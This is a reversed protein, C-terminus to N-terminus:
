VLAEVPLFPLDILFTAGCNKGSSSASLKGKMEGVANACSHLGFGHGDKKTTFGHSFIRTVNEPEIGAGNDTFSIHLRDQNHRRISIILQRDDVKSEVLSDKANQLLNVFVQLLKQKEIKVQPLEEFERIVRVNHKALSSALLLEADDILTGLEVVEHLGSIGAYSQQMSVITKVHDLHASLSDLEDTAIEREGSLKAVLKDMYGPLAQGKETHDFFHALNDQEHILDICKKMMPLRSSHLTERVLCASVNISNLVNGVNHLVGTAIEAKGARHSLEVLHQNMKEREEFETKLKLNAEKLESTRKEVRVELEDRSQQITKQAQEITELMENFCAYLTGIEDVSKTEVRRSYNGDDSVEQAAHALDLIPKSVVRQLRLIMVWAVILSFFMITVAIWFNHLTEQRIDDLSAHIYLTGLFEEDEIIPVLVDLYGDDTYQYGANMDVVQDDINFDPVRSYSALLAGSEDSLRAYQITKITSLSKLLEEASEVQGFSVAATSNSALLQASATLQTAKSARLSMITSVIFAVCSVLLAITCTATVIAILKGRISQTKIPM